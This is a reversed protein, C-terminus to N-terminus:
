GILNLAGEVTVDEANLWHIAPRAGFWTMQRKAYQHTAHKFQAVATRLDISGALFQAVERYGLGSMSPLSPAYGRDLLAAVEEIFGGAIWADIRADIRAYLSARELRLGVM